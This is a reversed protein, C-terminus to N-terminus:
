ARRDDNFVPTDGRDGRARRAFQRGARTADVPAALPEHGTEGVHVHMELVIAHAPQMDTVWRQGVARKLEFVRQRRIEGVAHQLDEIQGRHGLGDALAGLHLAAPHQSRV